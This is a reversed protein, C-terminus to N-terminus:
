FHKTLYFLPHVYPKLPRGGNKLKEQWNLEIYDPPARDEDANYLEDVFKQLNSNLYMPCKFSSVQFDSTTENPKKHKHRNPVVRLYNAQRAEARM